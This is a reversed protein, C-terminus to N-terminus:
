VFRSLIRNSVLMREEPIRLTGREFILLSNERLEAIEEAFREGVDVGFRKRFEALDIGRVLRLGVVFAERWAQGEDLAVIEERPDEGGRLKDLWKGLSDSNTWRELGSHSAASPGLGLFTESRWYKLNHRCERGPRAFNSIEYRRLGMTELRVAATEFADAAEDDDVPYARLVDEFPLGEVNELIYLSVHDPSLAAAEDLTKELADRTEGPVGIMLDLGIAAFGAGGAGRIIEKARAASYDRGLIALIRDDFSQVGVSLRTVGARVWGALVAEDVDGSPNAELTFEVPALKLHAALKDRLYKVDSPSLISPTGGGLYLTDFEWGLDAWRSAELSLGERWAVFSVEDYVASAFHCYPCKKRCFPFHVYLGARAPKAKM